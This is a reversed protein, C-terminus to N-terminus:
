LRRLWHSIAQPHWARPMLGVVDGAEMGEDREVATDALALGGDPDERRDGDFATAVVALLCALLPDEEPGDRDEVDRHSVRERADLGHRERRGDLWDFAVAMLVQDSLELAERALDAVVDLDAREGVVARAAPAIGLAALDDHSVPRRVALDPREDVFYSVCEAEAVAPVSVLFGLHEDVRDGVDDAGGGPKVNAALRDGVDGAPAFVAREVGDALVRFGDVGDGAADFGRDAVAGGDRLGLM